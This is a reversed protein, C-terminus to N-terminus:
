VYATTPLTLHTYSVTKNYVKKSKIDITKCLNIINKLGNHNKKCIAQIM